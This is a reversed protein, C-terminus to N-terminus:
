MQLTTEQQYQCESFTTRTVSVVGHIGYGVRLPPKWMAAIYALTNDMWRTLRALTLFPSEFTPSIAHM